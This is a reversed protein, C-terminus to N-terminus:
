WVSKVVDFLPMRPLGGLPLLLEHGDPHFQFTGFSSVTDERPEQGNGHPGSVQNLFKIDFISTKKELFRKTFHHSYFSSWNAAVNPPPPVFATPTVYGQYEMTPGTWEFYSIPTESFQIQPLHQIFALRWSGQKGVRIAAASGHCFRMANQQNHTEIFLAKNLGAEVGM